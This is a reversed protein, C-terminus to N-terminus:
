LTVRIYQMTNSTNTEKGLRILNREVCMTLYFSLLKKLNKEETYALTSFDHLNEKNEKSRDSLDVNVYGFGVSYLQAASIGWTISWLWGSEGMSVWNQSCFESKDLKIIKNVIKSHPSKKCSGCVGVCSNMWDIPKFKFQAIKRACKLFIEM